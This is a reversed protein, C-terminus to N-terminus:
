WLVRAGPGQGVAPHFDLPPGDGNWGPAPLPPCWKPRDFRFRRELAVVMANTDSLIGERRTGSAEIGALPRLNVASYLPFCHPMGRSLDPRVAGVAGPGSPVDLAEACQGNPDDDDVM